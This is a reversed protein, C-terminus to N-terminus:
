LGEQLSSLLATLGLLDYREPMAHRFIKLSAVGVQATSKLCALLAKNDGALYILELRHHTEDSTLKATQLVGRENPHAGYNITREYLMTVIPGVENDHDTLLRLMRRIKFEDRVIKEATATQHRKLWRDHSEPKHHFYFGYVANELCGRLLMYTEPIQGVLALHTAALYSSHTRPLFMAVFWDPANALNDVILRYAKDIEALRQYVPYQTVFRAFVNDRSTQLFASLADAGWGSPPPLNTM